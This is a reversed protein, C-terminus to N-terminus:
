AGPGAATIEASVEAAFKQEFNNRFMQALESAKRDYEEPDRWTSRPDLLRPDVGPVEVPVKFGFIPDTRYEVGDIKGSLAAQLLTRTAEIPMREDEGCHGIRTGASM